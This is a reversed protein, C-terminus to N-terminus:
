VYKSMKWVFFITPTFMFWKSACACTCGVNAVQDVSLRNANQIQLTGVWTQKKWFNVRWDGVM